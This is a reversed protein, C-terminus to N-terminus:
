SRRHSIESAGSADTDEGMKMVYAVLMQSLGLSFTINASLEPSGFQISTSPLPVGLIPLTMQLPLDAQYQQLFSLLNNLSFHFVPDSDLGVPPSRTTANELAVSSANSVVTTLETM